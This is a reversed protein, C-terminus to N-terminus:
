IPTEIGRRGTDGEKSVKRVKEAALIFKKIKNL